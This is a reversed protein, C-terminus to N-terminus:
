LCEPPLPLQIETLNLNAQDVCCTGTQLGVCHFGTENFVLLCFFTHLFPVFFLIAVSKASIAKGSVHYYINTHRICVEKALALSTLHSLTASQSLTILFSVSFLCFPFNYTDWGGAVTMLCLSEM